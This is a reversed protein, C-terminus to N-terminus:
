FGVVAEIVFGNFEGGYLTSTNPFDKYQQKVYEGKLLLNKIPYWGAAIEYRNISAADGLGTGLEGTVQNYKAGVYLQEDKFFRYLVEGGVQTVTRETADLFVYQGTESNKSLNNGTSTEIIGFVELGKYKVFPNFQVAMIKNSFGPNWRGSFAKSGLDAGDLEMVAGFRSGSRDGGYITNRGSNSNAMLSGSLRFRFDNEFVKDYALKLYISPQREKGDNYAKIDGKILGATMGIMGTFGEAPFIYVEGGIETAFADMIYNGVFPNYIANGNDSRRFQQDGYNPQFHGIKVRVFDSFWQPNDFMPLKDIQIYGGKVWFESHHASSMYNELSVRIGDALQVDINLNASATRFGPALDYLVGGNGTTDNSHELAQFQQTFAGGIRVKIGEFETVNDKPTEFVNVGTQDVPRYNSIAPQQAMLTATFTLALLAIFAKMLSMSNKM